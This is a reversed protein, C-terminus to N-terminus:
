DFDEDDTLGRAGMALAYGFARVREEFADPDADMLARCAPGIYYLAAERHYTSCAPEARRRAMTEAAQDYEAWAASDDGTPLEDGADAGNPALEAAEDQRREWLM